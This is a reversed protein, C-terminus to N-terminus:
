LASASVYQVSLVSGDDILIELKGGNKEYVLSGAKETYDSGLKETVTQADTGITIGEPTEVMDDKLVIRLIRDVDGDPYTYITFHAYLYQKDKGDFACSTSEFYDEYEGLGPLVKSVDMDVYVDTGNYRFAYGAHTEPTAAGSEGGGGCGSLSVSLVTCLLLLWVSFHFKKKM